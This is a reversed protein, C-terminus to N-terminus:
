ARLRRSCAESRERRADATARLRAGHGVGRRRPAARRLAGDHVLLGAGAETLRNLMLNTAVDLDPIVGDDISQHVTVVGHSIADAADKPRYDAGDLRMAGADNFHFGCLVKVLTSKGAGNAGMLVVVEGANLHMDVGRLVHNGGFSKELGIIECAKM